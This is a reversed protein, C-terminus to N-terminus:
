LRHRHLAAAMDGEDPEWTSVKRFYRDERRSGIAREVPGLRSPQIRPPLHREVRAYQEFMQNRPSYLAPLGVDVHEYDRFREVFRLTPKVTPWDCDNFGVVGGVRLTKDVYFFDLLAYDLSHLGDIYAVDVVLGEALLRPLAVYDSEDLLEHRHALGAREVNLVGINEWQTSQFPDISIVRGAGLEELAAAAAMSTAGYAMGVELVVAPRERLVLGYLAEAYERIVQSKTGQLSGHPGIVQNTDYLDTLIRPLPM